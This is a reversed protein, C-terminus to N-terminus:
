IHIHKFKKLISWLDYDSKGFIYQLDYEFKVLSLEASISVEGYM